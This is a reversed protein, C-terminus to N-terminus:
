SSYKLDLSFTTNNTCYNTNYNSKLDTLERWGNHHIEEGERYAIGPIESLTGVGDVYYRVLELFTKEGEGVMVRNCAYFLCGGGRIFCSNLKNGSYLYARFIVACINLVLFDVNDAQINIVGVFMKQRLYGSVAVVAIASIVLKNLQHIFGSHRDRKLRHAIHKSIVSYKCSCM